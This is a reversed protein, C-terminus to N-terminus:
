RWDDFQPRRDLRVRRLRYALIGPLALARGRAWARAVRHAAGSRSKASACHVALCSIHWRLFHHVRAAAHQGLSSQVEYALRARQSTAALSFPLGDARPAAVWHGRQTLGPRGQIEAVHGSLRRLRFEVRWCPIDSEHWYHQLLGFVCHLDSLLARERVRGDM